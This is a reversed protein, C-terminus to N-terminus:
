AGWAETPGDEPNHLAKSFGEKERFQAQLRKHKAYALKHDTEAVAQGCTTKVFHEQEETAPKRKGSELEEYFRLYKNLM